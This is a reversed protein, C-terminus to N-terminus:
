VTFFFPFWTWRDTARFGQALYHHNWVEGCVRMAQVALIVNRWTDSVKLLVLVLTLALLLMMELVWVARKFALYKLRAQFKFEEWVTTTDM